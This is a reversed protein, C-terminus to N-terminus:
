SALRRVSDWGFVEGRNGAPPLPWRLWPRRDLPVIGTELSGIKM